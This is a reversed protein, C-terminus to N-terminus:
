LIARYRLGILRKHTEEKSSDAILCASFVIFGILAYSLRKEAPYALALASQSTPIFPELLRKLTAITPQNKGNELDSLHGQSIDAELALRYVSMKKSERFYKLKKGLEM